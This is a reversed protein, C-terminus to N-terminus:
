SNLNTKRYESPTCHHRASFARYFTSKSGPKYGVMEPIRDITVSADRLLQEAYGIRLDNIYQHFNKGTARSLMNTFQTTGIGMKECLTLRTIDDQTYLREDECVRKLDAAFREVAQQQQAAVAETEQADGEGSAMRLEENKIKLKGRGQVLPFVPKDNEDFLVQVDVMPDKRAREFVVIMKYIRQCVDAWLVFAMVYVLAFLSTDLRYCGIWCLILGIGEICTRWMWRLDHGELTGFHDQLFRDYRIWSRGLLVAFVVVYGILYVLEMYFVIRFDGVAGIVAFLVFPVVHLAVLRMTIRRRRTLDTLVLVCLPVTIMDLRFLLHQVYPRYFIEPWWVLEAYFSGVIQWIMLAGMMRRRRTATHSSLTDDDDALFRYAWYMYLFLLGGRCLDNIHPQIYEFM